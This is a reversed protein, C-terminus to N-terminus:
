GVIKLFQILCVASCKLRLYGPSMIRTETRVFLNARLTVRFGAPLSVIQDSNSLVIGRGSAARLTVALDTGFSKTISPSSITGVESITIPGGDGGGVLSERM